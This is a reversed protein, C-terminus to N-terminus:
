MEEMSAVLIKGGYINLLVDVDREWREIKKRRNEIDKDKKKLQSMRTVLEGEEVLLM